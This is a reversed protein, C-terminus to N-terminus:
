LDDSANSSNSFPNAINNQQIYAYCEEATDAVITADACTYTGGVSAFPEILLELIEESYIAVWKNSPIDVTENIYKIIM